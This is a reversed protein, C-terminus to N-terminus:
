KLEELLEDLMRLSGLRNYTSMGTDNEIEQRKQTLWEKIIVKLNSRHIVETTPMFTRAEFVYEYAIEQLTKM